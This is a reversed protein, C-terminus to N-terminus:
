RSRGESELQPKDGGESDSESRTAPQGASAQEPKKTDLPLMAVRIEDESDGALTIPTDQFGDSQLTVEVPRTAVGLFELQMGDRGGIFSVSVKPLNSKAASTHSIADSDYSLSRLGQGNEANYPTIRVHFPYIQSHTEEVWWETAHQSFLFVAAVVAVAWAFSKPASSDDKVTEFWERHVGRKLVIFVYLCSAAAIILEAVTYASDPYPLRDGGIFHDYATWGGFGVMLIFGSIAFFLDWKRSPSRGILLGYGIPIGVFGFDLFFGGGALSAIMGIVSGVGAAIALAGAICIHRPPFSTM